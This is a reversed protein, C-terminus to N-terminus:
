PANGEWGFGGVTSVAHKVVAICALRGSGQFKWLGGIPRFPRFSEKGARVPRFRAFVWDISVIQSPNECGIIGKFDDSFLALVHNFPRIM